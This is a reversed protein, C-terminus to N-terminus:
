DLFGALEERLRKLVRGRALYVANPTIGTVSAVEGAPQGEVVHLWFARWTSEPFDSQIVHLIRRTLYHRYEDQSLEEIPDIGAHEDPSIGPTIVPQRNRARCQDRWCNRLITFLWGRFSGNQRQQFQSFQKIIRVLVNQVLDDADAEPIRNRRAWEFFLPSYLDVFRDWADLDDSRRLRELLTPTTSQM